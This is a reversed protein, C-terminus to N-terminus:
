VIRFELIEERKSMVFSHVQGNTKHTYTYMNSVQSVNLSKCIERTKYQLLVGVNTRSVHEICVAPLTECFFICAL